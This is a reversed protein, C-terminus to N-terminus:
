AEDADGAPAAVSQLTTGTSDTYVNERRQLPDFLPSHQEHGILYLPQGPIEEVLRTLYEGIIMLMIFLLFFLINAQLSQTVWGPAVDDKFFFIAMVYVTYLLSFLSGSIGALSVLRMPLSSNHIILSAGERIARPLSPRPPLGKRNIREYAFTTSRYGVEVLLVSLYRRKRQVQTVGNVAQRTLGVLYTMGPILRIHILHDVVAYFAARALRYPLSRGALKNAVGFVVDYGDRCRDVLEPIVGPPDSNPNLVIVYDGIAADLGATIAVDDPMRRSLPILRTRTTRRLLGGCRQRMGDGSGNDILLVEYHAYRARLEAHVESLVAELIEGDDRLPIVVSVFVDLVQM